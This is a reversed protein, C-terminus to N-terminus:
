GWEGRGKESRGKGPKRHDHRPNRRNESGNNSSAKNNDGSPRSENASSAAPAENDAAMNADTAVFIFPRASLLSFNYSDRPVSKKTQNVVLNEIRTLPAERQPGPPPAEHTPAVRSRSM